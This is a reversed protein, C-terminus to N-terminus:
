LATGGSEPTDPPDLDALSSRQHAIAFAGLTRQVAVEYQQDPSVAIVRSAPTPQKLSGSSHASFSLLFVTLKMTRTARRVLVLEAVPPAHRSEHALVLCSLASGTRQLAHNFSAAVRLPLEYLRAATRPEVRAAM